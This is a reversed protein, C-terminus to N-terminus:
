WLHKQFFIYFFGCSVFIEVTLWHLDCFMLSSLQLLLDTVEIESPFVLRCIIIFFSVWTITCIIARVIPMDTADTSLMKFSLSFRLLNGDQHFGITTVNQLSQAILNQASKSAKLLVSVEIFGNLRSFLSCDICYNGM